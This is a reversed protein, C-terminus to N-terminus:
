GTRVLIYKKGLVIAALVYSQGQIVEDDVVLAYLNGSITNEFIDDAEEWTMLEPNILNRKLSTPPVWLM